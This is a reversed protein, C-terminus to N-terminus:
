HSCHVPEESTMGVVSDTSLPMYREEAWGACNTVMCDSSLDAHFGMMGAGEPGAPQVMTGVEEWGGPLEELDSHCHVVREAVADLRGTHRREAAGQPLGGLNRVYGLEM